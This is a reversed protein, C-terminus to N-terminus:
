WKQKKSRSLRSKKRRKERRGKWVRSLKELYKKSFKPKDADTEMVNDGDVSVASDGRECGEEVERGDEKGVIFSSRSAQM